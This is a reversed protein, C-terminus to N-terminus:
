KLALTKVTEPSSPFPICNNETADHTQGRIEPVLSFPHWSLLGEVEQLRVGFRGNPSLALYATGQKCGSRACLASVAKQRPLALRGGDFIAAIIEATVKEARPPIARPRSARTARARALADLPPMIDFFTEAEAPRVIERYHAFIMQPSNGMLAATENENRHKAYHYSAFSHRLANQPWETRMDARDLTRRLKDAYNVAPLTGGIQRSCDLWARLQASIPILRRRRTKAKKAKVEIHEAGIEKWEIKEAESRRVGGFLSLIIVPLIDPATDLCADLLGKAQIPTIIEPPNEDLRPLDVALAPNDPLYKRKMAFAFLTRVDVLYSRMTSPAWGNQGIYEQIEAATIESIKRGRRNIQFRNISARLTQLYRTRLGAARKAALFETAVEGLTISPPAKGHRQIFDVAASLSWGLVRLRELQYGLSARESPPITVFHIGYAERDATKQRAYREADEKTEFFKRERKGDNGRPDNVRWRVIGHNVVKKIKV